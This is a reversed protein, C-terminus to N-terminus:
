GECFVINHLDNTLSVTSQVFQSNTASGMEFKGKSSMFGCQESISLKGSGDADMLDFSRSLYEGFKKPSEKRMSSPVLSEFEDNIALELPNVLIEQNNSM